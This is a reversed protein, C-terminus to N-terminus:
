CGIIHYNVVLLGNQCEKIEEGEEEEREVGACRITLQHSIPSLMLKIYKIKRRRRKDKITHFM